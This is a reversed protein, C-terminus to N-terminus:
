RTSSRPRAFRASARRPRAWSSSDSDSQRGHDRVGEVLAPPDGGAAHHVHQPADVVGEVVLRM